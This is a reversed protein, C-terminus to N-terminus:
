SSSDPLDYTKAFIVPKCPYFESEVGRIVQDGPMARHTGELTDIELWHVGVEASCGDEPGSAYRATGGHSLVWDIIATAGEATGDWQMAEIEVPKKRYKTPTQIM